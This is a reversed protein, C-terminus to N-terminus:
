IRATLNLFTHKLKKSFEEENVPEREYGDEPNLEINRKIISQNKKSNFKIKGKKSHQVVVFGDEDM